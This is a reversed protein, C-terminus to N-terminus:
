GLGHLWVTTPCSGPPQCVGLLFFVIEVIGVAVLRDVFERRGLLQVLESSFDSGQLIQDFLGV